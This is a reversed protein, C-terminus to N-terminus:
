CAVADVGVDGAGGSRPPELDGRREAHLARAAPGAPESGPRRHLQQEAGLQQANNINFMQSVNCGNIIPSGVASIWPQETTGVGQDVSGQDPSGAACGVSMAASIAFLGLMSTKMTLKKM